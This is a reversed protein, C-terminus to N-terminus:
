LPVIPRKTPLRPGELNWKDREVKFQAPPAPKFFNSPRNAISEVAVLNVSGDANEDESQLKYISRISSGQPTLALERTMAAASVAPAVAGMVTMGGTPTCFSDVWKKADGDALANLTDCDGKHYAETWKLYTLYAPSQYFYARYVGFIVGAAVLLAILKGM